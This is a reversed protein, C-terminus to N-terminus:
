REMGRAMEAADTLTGVVDACIASYIRDYEDPHIKETVDIDENDLAFVGYVLPELGDVEYTAVVDVLKGNIWAATEYENNLTKEGHRNVPLADFWANFRALKAAETTM